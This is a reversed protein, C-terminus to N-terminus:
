LACLAPLLNALDQLALLDDRLAADRVALRVRSRDRDIAEAVTVAAAPALQLQLLLVHSIRSPTASQAGSSAAAIPRVLWLLSAAATALVVAGAEGRAVLRRLQALPPPPPEATASATPSSAESDRRSRDRQSSAASPPLPPLPGFVALADGLSRPSRGPSRISASRSRSSSRETALWHALCGDAYNTALENCFAITMGGLAAADDDVAAAAAATSAAAIAVGLPLADLFRLLDRPWTSAARASLSRNLALFDMQVLWQSLLAELREAAAAHAASPSQVSSTATLASSISAASSTASGSSADSLRSHVSGRLSEDRHAAHVSKDSAGAALRRQLALLADEALDTSCGISKRFHPSQLFLAISAVLILAYPATPQSLAAVLSGSPPSAADAADAAERDAGEDKPCSEPQLAVDVVLLNAQQSRIFGKIWGGSNSHALLASRLKPSKSAIEAALLM